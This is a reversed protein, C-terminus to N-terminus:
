APEPVDDDDDDNEDGCLFPMIKRPNRMFKREESVSEFTITIGSMTGDELRGTSVMLYPRPCETDAFKVCPNITACYGLLEGTFPDVVM